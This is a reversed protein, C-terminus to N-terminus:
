KKKKKLVVAVAAAIGAVAALALAGGVIYPVISGKDDKKGGNEGKSTSESPKESAPENKSSAVPASPEASPEVSPEESPELSPEVSPEESPDESPEVPPDVPPDVVDGLSGEILGWEVIGAAARSTEIVIRLSTVAVDEFEYTIFGNGHTCKYADTHTVPTFTNTESNQYYIEFGNALRVGGGDNYWWINCGSLVVEEDFDYQVWPKKLVEGDKYSTWRRDQSDTGDNLYNIQDYPSVYSASPTAYASLAKEMPQKAVYVCMQNKGRNMRAYFPIFTLEVAKDESVGQRFGGLKILYMDRVGYGDTKGDISTTWELKAESNKDLYTHRVDFDHDIEELCYVLPGRRVSTYGINEKVEEVTEEFVVPMSFDFEIKDGKKWQREITIYGDNGALLKETTGNIKLTVGDSWAPMRLCLKFTMTGELDLTMSGKGNWPMESTMSVSVNKGGFPVTANNAIYQNVYLAD